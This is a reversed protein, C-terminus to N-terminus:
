SIPCCPCTVQTESDLPLIKSRKELRVARTPGSSPDYPISQVHVLKQKIDIWRNMIDTWTQSEHQALEISFQKMYEVHFDQPSSKLIDGTRIPAFLMTSWEQLLLCENGLTNSLEIENCLQLVTELSDSRQKIIQFEKDM